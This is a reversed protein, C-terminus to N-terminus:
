NKTKLKQNKTPPRTPSPAQTKPRTPQQRDTHHTRTLHPTTHRALRKATPVLTSHPANMKIEVVLGALFPVVGCCMSDLFLQPHTLRKQTQVPTCHHHRHCCTEPSLSSMSPKEPSNLNVQQPKDMELEQVWQSRRSHRCRNFVGLSRLLFEARSFWM